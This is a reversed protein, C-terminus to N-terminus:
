EFVMLAAHHIIVVLTAGKTISEYVSFLDWNPFMDFSCGSDLIQYDFSNSDGNSILILEGDSYNDEVVNAQKFNELHKGKKNDIVKKNKNKNQLKYCEFKIHGKEKCCRRVKDKSSSKSRGTTEGGYNREHLRAHVTLSEARAKSGVVPQNM